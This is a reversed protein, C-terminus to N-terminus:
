EAKSLIALDKALKNQESERISELVGGLRLILWQFARRLPDDIVTWILSPVWYVAWGTVLGINERVRPATMKVKAMRGIQNDGNLLKLFEEETKLEEKRDSFQFFDKREADVWAVAGRRWKGLYSRWKILCWFVGALLYAGLCGLLLVPNAFLAIVNVVGLLHLALISLLTIFTAGGFNEREVNVTTWIGFGGLLLFMLLLPLELVAFLM